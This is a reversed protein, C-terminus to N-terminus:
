ILRRDGRDDAVEGPERVDVRDLVREEEAAEEVLLDRRQRVDVEVERPVDTRLEDRPDM